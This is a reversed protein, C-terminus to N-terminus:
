LFGKRGRIQSRMKLFKGKKKDKLIVQKTTVFLFFQLFVANKVFFYNYLIKGKKAQVFIYIGHLLFYALGIKLYVNKM